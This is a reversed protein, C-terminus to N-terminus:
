SERRRHFHRPLERCRAHDPASFGRRDKDGDLASKPEDRHRQEGLVLVVDHDRARDGVLVLHGDAADGRQSPM